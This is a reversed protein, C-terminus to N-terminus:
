ISRRREDTSGWLFKINLKDLKERTNSPLYTMQMTYGPITSTVTSVLTARGALSISNIKWGVLRNQVKDVIDMYHGQSVRKHLIPVGLYKELDLTTQFGM